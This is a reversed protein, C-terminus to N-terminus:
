RRRPEKEGQEGVIEVNSSKVKLQEIWNTHEGHRNLIVGSIYENFELGATPRIIDTGEIEFNMITLKPEYGFEEVLIKYVFDWLNEKTVSQFEIYGDDDSGFVQYQIGVKDDSDGFLVYNDKKLIDEIFKKLLNIDNERLKKM